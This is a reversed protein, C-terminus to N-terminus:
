MCSKSSPPYRSMRGSNKTEENKWRTDQYIHPHLEECPNRIFYFKIQLQVLRLKSPQWHFFQETFLVYDYDM